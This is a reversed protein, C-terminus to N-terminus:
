FAVAYGKQPIKGSYFHYTYKEKYRKMSAYTEDRNKSHVILKVDIPRRENDEKLVEVLIWEDKYKEKIEEITM